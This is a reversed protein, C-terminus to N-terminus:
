SHRESGQQTHFVLYDGPFKRGCIQLEIGPLQAFSRNNKLAM